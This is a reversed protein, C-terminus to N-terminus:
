TAVVLGQRRGSVTPCTLPAPQLVHGDPREGLPTSQQARVEHWTRELHQALQEAAPVVSSSAIGPAFSPHYGRTIFFPSQETSASRSNNFAFEALPLWAAWDDQHYSIYCRLYAELTQITRESKGNTQPHCATSPSANVDLLQLLRRWFQSIFTAGRDSIIRDPLGHLRFIHVLFIWIADFGDSLPLEAAHGM